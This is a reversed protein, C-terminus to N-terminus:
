LTSNKFNLVASDFTVDPGKDVDKKYCKEFVTNNSWHGRKLIEKLPVGQTAARSSSASRTSYGKFTETDIGALSLVEIIWRSVTSSTVPKHPKIFSLLLQDNESRWSKSREMYLDIHHCVCLNSNERFHRLKIPPRTRSRRDVKTPKGFHFSYESTHKVLFKLNLYTIEHARAASVLALLMTLKLTLMKDSINNTNISSLYIVVREVDWIFTYKPQPFRKNYIGTLLSSVLPHKGVANGDIPDHYASIASRYGAITNYELGEDFSDSLFELVLNLPCRVSDIQRRNCWSDWKNWASQYHSLTGKRRAATILGATKESIGDAKLKDRFSDLGSFSSKSKVTSSSVRGSSKISSRCESTFTYPKSSVVPAAASVLGSNALISHDISNNCWRFKSELSNERHPLITSFCVRTSTDLMGSFCGTVQQLSRNELLFLSTSSTDTQFCVSRHESNGKSQLSNSINKPEVDM